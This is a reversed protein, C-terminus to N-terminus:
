QAAEPIPTLRADGDLVWPVHELSSEIARSSQYPLSSDALWPYRVDKSQMLVDPGTVLVGRRTQYAHFRISSSGFALVRNRDAGVFREVTREPEVVVENTVEREVERTGVVEESLMYDLRDQYDDYCKQWARQAPGSEKEFWGTVTHLAACRLFVLFALDRKLLAMVQGIM